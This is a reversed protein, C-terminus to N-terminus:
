ARAGARQLACLTFPDADALAVTGNAWHTRAKHVHWTGAWAPMRLECGMTAFRTALARLPDRGRDFTRLHGDAALALHM